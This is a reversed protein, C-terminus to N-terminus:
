AVGDAGGLKWQSPEKATADLMIAMHLFTDGKAAGGKKKV